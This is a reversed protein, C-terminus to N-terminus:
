VKISIDNIKIKQNEYFYEDNIRFHERFTCYNFEVSSNEVPNCHVNKTFVCGSFVYNLEAFNVKDTTDDENKLHFVSIERDVTDYTKDKGLVLSNINIKVEEDFELSSFTIENGCISISGQYDAILSDGHLYDDSNFKTM